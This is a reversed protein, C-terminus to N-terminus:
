LTANNMSVKTNDKASPRCPKILSRIYDKIEEINDLDPIDIKRTKFFDRVEHINMNDVDNPKIDIEAMDEGTAM